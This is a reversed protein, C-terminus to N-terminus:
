HLEISKRRWLNQKKLIVFRTMNHNITQIEPALKYMKSSNEYYCCNRQYQRRSNPKLEDKDELNLLLYKLFEMCQLLAMPHHVEIYRGIRSGAIGNLKPSNLLARM